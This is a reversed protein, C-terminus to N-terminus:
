ETISTVLLFHQLRLVLKLLLQVQSFKNVSLANVRRRDDSQQITGLTQEDVLHSLHDYSLGGVGVRTSIVLEVVHLLSVGEIDFFHHETFSLDVVSEDIKVLQAFSVLCAIKNLDVVEFGLQHILRFLHRVVLATVRVISFVPMCLKGPLRSRVQSSPFIRRNELAANVLVWDYFVLGPFLELSCLLSQSFVGECVRSAVVAQDFKLAGGRMHVVRREIKLVFSSQATVQFSQIRVNDVRVLKWLLLLSSVGERRPEDVVIMLKM